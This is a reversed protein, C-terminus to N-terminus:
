TYRDIESVEDDSGELCIEDLEDDETADNLLVIVDDVSFQRVAM